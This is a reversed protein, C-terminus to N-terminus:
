QHVLQLQMFYLSVPLSRKCMNARVYEHLMQAWLGRLAIYACVYWLQQM